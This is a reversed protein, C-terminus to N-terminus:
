LVEDEGIQALADEFSIEPDEHVLPAVEAPEAAVDGTALQRREAAQKAKYEARKANNRKTRTSGGREAQALAGLGLVREQRKEEDQVPFEADAEAALANVHDLTLLLRGLKPFVMAEEDWSLLEVNNFLLPLDEENEPVELRVAFVARSKTNGKLLQRRIADVEKFSVGPLDFRVEENIFNQVSQAALAAEVRDHTEVDGGALAEAKLSKLAQRSLMMWSGLLALPKSDALTTAEGSENKVFPTPEVWQKGNWQFFAAALGKFFWGKNDKTDAYTFRGGNTTLFTNPRDGVNDDGNGKNAPFINCSIINYGKATYAAFTEEINVVESGEVSIKSSSASQNFIAM